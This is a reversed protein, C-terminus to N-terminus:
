AATEGSNYCGYRLRNRIKKGYATSPDIEAVADSSGGARDAAALTPPGDILLGSTSFDDSRSASSFGVISITAAALLGAYVSGMAGTGVVAIKM